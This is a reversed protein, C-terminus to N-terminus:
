EEVISKVSLMGNKTIEDEYDWPSLPIYIYGTYQQRITTLQPLHYM